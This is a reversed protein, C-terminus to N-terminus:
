LQLRLHGRLPGSESPQLLEQRVALLTIKNSFHSCSIATGAAFRAALGNKASFQQDVEGVAAIEKADPNFGKQHTSRYDEIRNKM